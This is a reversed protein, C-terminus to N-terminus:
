WGKLKKGSKDSNVCYEIRIVNTKAPRVFMRTWKLGMVCPELNSLCRKSIVFILHIALLGAFLPPALPASQGLAEYGSPGWITFATNKLIGWFAKSAKIGFSVRKPAYAVIQLDPPSRSSWKAGPRRNGRQPGSQQHLPSATITDIIEITHQRVDWLGEEQTMTNDDNRKCICPRLKHSHLNTDCM